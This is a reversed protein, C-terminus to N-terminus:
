PKLLQRRLELLARAYRRFAVLLTQAELRDVEIAKPHAAENRCLRIIEFVHDVAQLLEERARGELKPRNQDLSQRWARFGRFITGNALTRQIKEADPLRGATERIVRGMLAESAGGLMVLSARYLCLHFARVSEELYSRELKMLGPVKRRIDALFGMPDWVADKDGALVKRGFETVQLPVDQQDEQRLRPGLIGCRMLEHVVECVHPAVEHKLLRGGGPLPVSADPHEDAIHTLIARLSSDPRQKVLYQVISTRLTSYDM